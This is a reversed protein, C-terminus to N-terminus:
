AYQFSEILPLLNKYAKSGKMKRENFKCDFGSQYLVSIEIKPKLSYFKEVSGKFIINDNCILFGQMMDCYTKALNDWDGGGIPRILGLQALYIEHANMSSVPIPEYVKIDVKTLTYAIENITVLRRMTKRHQNAGKVYFHGNPTSRPRPSPKPILNFSLIAEKWELKAINDIMETLKADNIKYKTRILELLDEQRDPLHGYKDNYEKELSTLESM